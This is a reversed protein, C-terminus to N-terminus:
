QSQDKESVKSVSEKSTNIVIHEELVQAEAMPDILVTQLETFGMTWETGCTM